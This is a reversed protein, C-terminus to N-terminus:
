GAWRELMQHYRGSETEGTESLLGGMKGEGGTKPSTRVQVELARERSRGRAPSRKLMRVLVEELFGERVGESFQCRGVWRREAKEPQIEKMARRM